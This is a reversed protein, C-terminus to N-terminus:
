IFNTYLFSISARTTAFNTAVPMSIEPFIKLHATEFAVGAFLRREVDRYEPLNKFGAFLGVEELLITQILISYGMMEKADSDYRPQLTGKIQLYRPHINYKLDLEAGFDYYDFNYRMGYFFAYSGSIGLPIEFVYFLAIRGYQLELDQAFVSNEYALGWSQFPKIGAYAYKSNRMGLIYSPGQAFSVSLAFLLIVLFIKM